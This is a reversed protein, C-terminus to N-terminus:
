ARRPPDVLGQPPPQYAPGDPLGTLYDAVLDAVQHRVKRIQAADWFALPQPVPEPELVRERELVPEPEPEPPTM